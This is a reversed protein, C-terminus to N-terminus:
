LFRAPAFPELNLSPEEGVALEAVLQGTLAALTLGLHGHGSALIVGPHRPLRGILPLSDPTSPRSGVWDSKVTPDIALMQSANALMNDTCRSDSPADADAFEAVGAVRVGEAMPTLYISKDLWGVPRNLQK